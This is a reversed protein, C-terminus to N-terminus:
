LGVCRGPLLVTASRGIWCVEMWWWRVRRMMVMVMRQMRRAGQVGLETGRASKESRFMKTSVM